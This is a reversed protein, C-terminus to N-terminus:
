RPLGSSYVRLLVVHLGECSTRVMAMQTVAYGETSSSVPAGREQYPPLTPPQPSLTYPAVYSGPPYGLPQVPPIGQGVVPYSTV